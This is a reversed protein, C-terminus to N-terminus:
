SQRRDHTAKGLSPVINRANVPSTLDILGVRAILLCGSRMGLDL